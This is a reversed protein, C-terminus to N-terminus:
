NNVNGDLIHVESSVRKVCEYDNLQSNFLYICNDELVHYWKGTIDKKPLQNKYLIPIAGGYALSEDDKEKDFISYCYRGKYYVIIVYSGKIINQGAGCTFEDTTVFDDSVLYINGLNKAVKPPLTAATCTNVFNLASINNNGGTEQKKYNSKYKAYRADM